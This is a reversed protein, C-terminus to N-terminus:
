RVKVFHNDIRLNFVILMKYNCFYDKKNYSDTKVHYVYDNGQGLDFYVISILYIKRVIAYENGEVMREVAAKSEMYLM